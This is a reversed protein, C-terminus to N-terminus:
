QAGFQGDLVCHANGTSLVPNVIGLQAGAPLGYTSVSAPLTFSPIPFAPLGNNIANALVDALASTLFQEMADRQQQSLTAAFSVYLKDLSLNGFTLANGNMSVKANAHGGFMITIPQDILGPITLTAYVGGLMLEATDNNGVVAVPPLWSDITATGGGINLTAQFYGARWLAHLVQNLVGEYASVAVPQANSTGPPDVLPDPTRRAIGLSPRNVTTVGPTFRTGIGFLARVNTIDLSSFQLGFGLTVNGSGDLRPVNFQQALTSIDLSSTIGDLMPGVKTNIFTALANQVASKVTGTFFSQVLDILFGCFGSGSLNVAGVTVNPTGIVATRVLGGQLSLGFQVTADIYSATVQINSGGICCTTGCAHVNLRVNPLHVYAQFGGNVLTLTTAPTDWAISGANYTVTPKCAFVGCSGNYIPNSNNVAQDVLQRLADSKLVTYFLDNLSDLGSPDPDGIAYQDLRLALSGAMPNSEPSFFSGALVFCTKSNQVNNNDTVVVDIFNMGFTIPVPATWNGTASDISAANGGITVSAPTFAGGIRVPFSVSAPAQQVMYADSATTPSDLRMCDIIAGKSDVLAPLTVSLPVSNDTSSTVQATLGYTGDQSFLFRAPAPAQVTPNASYAFTVDDVRNGFKDFVSAILTVQDFIAYLTRAPDLVGAISAPLAPLVVLNAPEVEAAGSVVCSVTYQGAITATVETATTTTGAGTPSLAIAQAVNEVPNDYADFALCTVGDPDGAITTPTALQTIVRVPPGATITVDEPTVDVIGLSPAGCQVTATGVKAAVTAGSTATAFHEPAQYSIVFDTEATLPNGDKDLAPDGQADFISCQAGVPDGAVLTSSSVRTEITLNPRLNDGCAVTFSLVAFVLTRM